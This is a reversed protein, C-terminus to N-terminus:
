PQLAQAKEGLTDLWTQLYIENPGATLPNSFVERKDLATKSIMHWRISRTAYDPVQWIMYDHQSEGFAVRQFGPADAEVVKVEDFVKTSELAAVLERSQKSAQAVFTPLDVQLPDTGIEFRADQWTQYLAAPDDLGMGPRGHLYLIKQLKQRLGPDDYLQYLKVDRLTRASEVAQQQDRVRKEIMEDRLVLVMASGGIRNQAPQLVPAAPEATEAAPPPAACGVQLLALLCACPALRAALRSGSGFIVFGRKEAVM